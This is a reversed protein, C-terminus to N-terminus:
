ATSVRNRGALKGKYLAQDARSVLDSFADAPQLSASGLTLTLPIQKGAFELPSSEFRARIREALAEAGKANTNALLLVFEEGGWRCVVESERVSTKLLRAAHILATDGADHGHQDNIAKFRDLDCILISLPSEYRKARVIERSAIENMSHRNYLGTLQDVTAFAQLDAQQQTVIQFYRWVIGSVALIVSGFNIARMAMLSNEELDVIARYSGTYEQLGIVFAGLVLIILIKSWVGIRGTVVVLPFMPVFLIEFGAARGLSLALISVSTLFIGLFAMLGIVFILFPRAEDLAWLLITCLGVFALCLLWLPSDLIYLLIAHCLSVLIALLATFHTLQRYTQRVLPTDEPRGSGPLPREMNKLKGHNGAPNHPEDQCGVIHM